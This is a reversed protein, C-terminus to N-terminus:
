KNWEKLWKRMEEIEKTQARTEALKAMTIADEHHPIMQEIFHADLVDSNQSSKTMAPTTYKMITTMYVWVVFAGLFFGIILSLAKNKM